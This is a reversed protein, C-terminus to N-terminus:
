VDLGKRKMYFECLELDDLTDIEYEQWPEMVYMTKNFGIISVYERLTEVKIVYISGNELFYIERDQRRLRKKYDYTLSVCLAGNKRWLCCDHKEVVSFLSDTNSSTFLNIASHIDKKRRLPSTPQLYVVIDRDNLGITDIAHLLSDASTATDTALERPRLIPIANNKMAINLIEPSDSSVYTDLGSYKSQLITWEVLPKGCFDVLNKRPIGKSGGRALIIIVTRSKM